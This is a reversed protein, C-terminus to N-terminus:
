SEKSAETPREEAYQEILWQAIEALTKIPVIKEESDWLAQLREMSEAKLASRFFDLFARNVEADDKSGFRTSYTLLTHGQLEPKCHFTEGHLDFEIPDKESVPAGFNKTRASM